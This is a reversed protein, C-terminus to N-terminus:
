LYARGVKEFGLTGARIAALLTTKSAGGHPFFRKVAAALPMPELM